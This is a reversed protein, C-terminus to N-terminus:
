SYGEFDLQGALWAWAGDTSRGDVVIVEFSVAVNRRINDICIRLRDLRNFTPVVISVIPRSLM